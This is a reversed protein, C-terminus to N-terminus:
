KEMRIAHGTLEFRKKKMDAIIDLDKHLERPEEDTRIRWMGQEVV